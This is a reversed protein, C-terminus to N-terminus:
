HGAARGRIGQDPQQQQQDAQAAKSIPAMDAGSAAADPKWGGYVIGSVAVAATPISSVTVTSAVAPRGPCGPGPVPFAHTM